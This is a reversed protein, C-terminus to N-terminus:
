TEGQVKLAEDLDAEAADLAEQLASTREEYAEMLIHLYRIYRALDPAAEALALQASKRIRGTAGDLYEPEVQLVRDVIKNIHDRDAM